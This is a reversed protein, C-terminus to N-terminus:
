AGTNSADVNAAEGKSKPTVVLQVEICLGPLWRGLRRNFRYWWRYNEWRRLIGGSIIRFGQVDVVEFLDRLDRKISRLSYTQIHESGRLGYRRVHWRRLKAIPEPFIPVGVIFLGGPRLVRHAEAIALGPDDLHELVQESVLVDFSADAFDLPVNADGQRVEWDGGTYVDTHRTPDIDLGLFDFRHGIEAANLYLFTRGFGSGVDLLKFRQELPQKALWQTLTTALEAYRALRLRYRVKAPEVGFAWVDQGPRYQVFM